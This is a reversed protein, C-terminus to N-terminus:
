SGRVEVESLYGLRPDDNPNTFLFRVYRGSASTTLSQWAGAKPANRRTALTTWAQGDDSVQIRFRDAFGIRTFKWRIEGIEVPSQLSGIEFRAFATKPPKSTGTVWSTAPDGDAARNASNSNGSEADGTIGLPGNTPENPAPAAMAADGGSGLHLVRESSGDPDGGFGDASGQARSADGLLWARAEAPSAGPSIAAFLALAGAVHPSAMSTGSM